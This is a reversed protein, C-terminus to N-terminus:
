ILENKLFDIESFLLTACLADNVLFLFSGIFIWNSFFLEWNICFYISFGFGFVGLCGCRGGTGITLGCLITPSTLIIM